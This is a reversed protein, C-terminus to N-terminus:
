FNGLSPSPRELLESVKRDVSQRWAKLDEIEIILHEAVERLLEINAPDIDKAGKTHPRMDHVIQKADKLLM